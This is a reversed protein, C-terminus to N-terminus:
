PQDKQNRWRLYAKVRVAVYAGLAYGLVFCSGTALGRIGEGIGLVLASAQVASLAGTMAPKDRESYHVWAVGIAELAFGSLVALASGAVDIM